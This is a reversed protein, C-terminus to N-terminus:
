KKRTNSQRHVDVHEAHSYEDNQKLTKKRKLNQHWSVLWLKITGAPSYAPGDVAVVGRKSLNRRFIQPLM